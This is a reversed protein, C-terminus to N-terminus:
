EATVFGIAFSVGTQTRKVMRNKEEYGPPGEVGLDGRVTLFPQYLHARGDPGTVGTETGGGSPINTCGLRRITDEDPSYDFSIRVGELPREGAERLGNANDDIWAEIDIGGAEPFGPDCWVEPTPPVVCSAVALLGIVTCALTATWKM